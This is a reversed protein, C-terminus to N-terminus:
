TEASHFSTLAESIPRLAEFAAEFQEQHMEYMPRYESRPEYRTAAEVGDDVESRALDGRRALALRAVTRAVATDPDAAPAIPRDLIDALVQCWGPSRAAGGVFIFEDITNGTFTEVHPLLWALNHAVGETVSRVLEVRHTELSVNIFGGRMNPNASPALSGGLWPLFLAGGAGPSSQDLANELRAFLEGTSHDALTDNAYVHQELMYEVVRGGYGNEAFVLYSDRSLAPMSLIEHDLDTNKDAVSDVLVSTTGIALGGRGPRGVGAAVGLAATDNSGAYVVATTPLGLQAAVGEDLRGVEDDIGILPPLRDPDVGSLEILHSDYETAGLSRNDCLQSMFMSHQTATIRRTLRATVYDMPELYATTAQHIKPRDHQLFLLHALALGGGVPPIGHVDIWTLFASEDRGMIDWSHDTGRHDSWMVMPGVPEVQANVPVISSYQSCVGVAGVQSAVQPHASTLEAIADCIRAWLDDADQEVATGQRSTQLGRQACAVVTGDPDVLVAKVNTTGVDLGLAASM